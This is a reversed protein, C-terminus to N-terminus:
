EDNIGIPNKILMKHSLDRAISPPVFRYELVPGRLSQRVMPLYGSSLVLAREYLDPWRWERRIRLAPVGEDNCNTYQVSTQRAASHLGLRTQLVEREGQFWANTIPDRFAEVTESRYANGFTLRWFGAKGSTLAASEWLRGTRHAASQVLNLNLSDTVDIISRTYVDVTPLIDVLHRASDQIPVSYHHFIPAIDEISACTVLVVSPGDCEPHPAWSISAHDKLADVLDLNVQGYLAYISLEPSSRAVLPSAVTPAVSWRNRTFDSEVYGLLRLRRAVQNARLDPAEDGELVLEIINSLQAWTGQGRENLFWRVDDLLATHREVVSPPIPERPQVIWPLLREVAESLRDLATAARSQAALAELHAADARDLASQTISALASEAEDPARIPEAPLSATVWERLFDGPLVGDSGVDDRLAQIKAWHADIEQRAGLCMDSIADVQERIDIFERRLSSIDLLSTQISDSELFIGALSALKNHTQVIVDSVSQSSLRATKASNFAESLYDHIKSTFESRTETLAQHLAERDCKINDVLTSVQDYLQHVLFDSNIVIQSQNNIYIFDEHINSRYLELERTYGRSEDTYSKVESRTTNMGELLAILRIHHDASEDFERKLHLIREYLETIGSKAQLISVSEFEQRLSTLNSVLIRNKDKVQSLLSRADQISKLLIRDPDIEYLQEASLPTRTGTPWVFCLVPSFQSTLHSILRDQIDRVQSVPMAAWSGSTPRVTVIFHVWDNSSEIHFSDVVLKYYQDSVARIASAFPAVSARADGSRLGVSIKLPNFIYPISRDFPQFARM